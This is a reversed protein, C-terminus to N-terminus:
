AGKMFFGQRLRVGSGMAAPLRASPKASCFYDTEPLRGFIRAGIEVSEAAMRGGSLRLSKPYLANYRDM